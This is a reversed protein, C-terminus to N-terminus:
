TADCRLSFCDEYDVGNSCRIPVEYMNRFPLQKNRRLISWSVKVLIFYLIGDVQIFALICETPNDQALTVEKSQSLCM